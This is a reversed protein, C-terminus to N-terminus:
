SRGRERSQGGMRAQWLEYSIVVVDAAGPLEDSEVLVRGLLPPVGVIRFASATMEAGRVPAPGGDEPIVNYAQTTAAGIADFSSLEDRWVVFDHLSRSEDQREAVNWNRIGVIRDGEAFPLPAAMADIGHIPILSAPIGISLAVVSVLTLGPNRLLMRLGLRVDLSSVGVGWARSRHGRQRRRLAIALVWTQPHLFHAAYWLWAAAAGWRARHESYRSDLTDCVEAGLDGPLRRRLLRSLWRGPANM